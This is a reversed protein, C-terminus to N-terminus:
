VDQLSSPVAHRTDWFDVVYIVDGDIRYLMKSLNGIIIYRYIVQETSLRWDIAGINPYTILIKRAEKYSARFERVANEGFHHAIYRAIRNRGDLAKASDVIMM